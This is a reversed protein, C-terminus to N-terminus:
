SRWSPGSSLIITGFGYFLVINLDGGGNMPGIVIDTESLLVGPLLPLCWKVGAIPGTPYLLQTRSGILDKALDKDECKNFEAIEWQIRKSVRQYILDARAKVEREHLVWGGVWTALYLLIVIIKRKHKFFVSSIGKAVINV